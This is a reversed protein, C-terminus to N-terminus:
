TLYETMCAFSTFVYHNEGVELYEVGVDGQAAAATPILKIRTPIVFEGKKSKNFDVLHAIRHFTPANMVGLTYFIESCEQLLKSEEDNIAELRRHDAVIDLMVELMDRKADADFLKLKFKSLAVASVTLHNGYGALGSFDGDLKGFFQLLLQSLVKILM